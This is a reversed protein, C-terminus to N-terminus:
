NDFIPFVRGEQGYYFMKEMIILDPTELLPNKKTEQEYSFIDNIIEQYVEQTSYTLHNEIFL